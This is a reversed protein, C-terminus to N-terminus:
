VGESLRSKILRRGAATKFYLERKRATAFDEFHEQYAVRLGSMKATTHTRGSKHESLRRALDNTLGKYLKGQSDRLVYIYM